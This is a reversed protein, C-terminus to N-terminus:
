KALGMGEWCCRPGDTSPIPNQDLQTERGGWGQGCQNMVKLAGRCLSIFFLLCTSSLYLKMQKQQKGLSILNDRGLWKKM